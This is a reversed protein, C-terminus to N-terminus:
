ALVFKQIQSNRTGVTTHLIRNHSRSRVRIPSLINSLLRIMLEVRIANVAQAPLGSSRASRRLLRMEATKGLGDSRSPTMRANGIPSMPRTRSIDNMSASTLSASIALRTELYQAALLPSEPSTLMRSSRPLLSTVKGSPRVTCNRFM